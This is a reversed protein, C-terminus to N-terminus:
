KIMELFEKETIIKTGQEQAKVYKATPEIFNTVLYSLGHVVSKKPIGGRAIVMQEAEARKVTELKGTFCFTLGELNVGEKEKTPKELKGNGILDYAGDILKKYRKPNVSNVWSAMGSLERIKEAPLDGELKQKKANFIAARFKRIWKRPIALESNNIVVGTIEQRNNKRLYRTKKRNIKFGEEKVILSVLGCFRGINVNTEDEFTFSMDDAYRTYKIGMKEALTSLRNDLRRCVLNTIMPSAPSGQPLVRRSTAVYKTRGKVVIPIRECYTCLMSILTSIHGSYGYSDMLGRVREFTVTPFFDELDMNIVLGPQKPHNNAGTIVSKGKLFGHAHESVPLISLIKDLITRQAAKLLPKPAAILRDGGSRKPIKYRTYHDTEVVDRHYILFRLKSYEIGLFIALDKDSSIVPLNLAKLQDENADHNYLRSSYGKGVFVIEEKKKKQWAEARQQKKLERQKKIEDRRKISERMIEQSIDLRIKEIDWTEDYKKRLERLKRNIDDKDKYFNAIKNVIEQYDKILKERQAFEEPSESKQKEYPTPVGKPWFGYEQMKLLTFEKKGMQNIIARYDAKSKREIEESETM